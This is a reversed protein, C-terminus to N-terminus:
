IRSAMQVEEMCHLHFNHNYGLSRISSTLTLLHDEIVQKKPVAYGVVQVGPNSSAYSLAATRISNLATVKSTFTSYESKGRVSEMTSLINLVENKDAVSLANFEAVTKPTRSDLFELTSVPLAEDLSPVEASLTLTALEIDNNLIRSLTFENKIVDTLPSLSVSGGLSPSTSPIRSNKTKQTRVQYLLQCTKEPLESRIDILNCGGPARIKKVFGLETCLIKKSKPDRFFEVTNMQNIPKRYTEFTISRGCKNNAVLSKIFNGATTQLPRTDILSYRSIDYLPISIDAERAHADQIVLGQLIGNMWSRPKNGNSSSAPLESQLMQRGPFTLPQVSPAYFYKVVRKDNDTYTLKYKYSAGVPAVLRCSGMQGMLSLRTVQEPSMKAVIEAGSISGFVSGAFLASATISFIRKM